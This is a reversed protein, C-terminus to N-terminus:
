SGLAYIWVGKVRQLNGEYFNHDGVLELPCLRGQEMRRSLIVRDRKDFLGIRGYAEPAQSEPIPTRMGREISGFLARLTRGGTVKTLFLSEATGQVYVLVVSDGIRMKPIVTDWLSPPVLIPTDDEYGVHAKSMPDTIRWSVDNLTKTKTKRPAPM